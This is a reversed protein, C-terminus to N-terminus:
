ARRMAKMPFKGFAGTDVTGEILDDGQMRAECELTMPMPVKIALKFTVIDGAVQGDAIEVAGLPGSAAGSFTGGSSSLTLTMAQKGMPSDVECDWQGDITAM